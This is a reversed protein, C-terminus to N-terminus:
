SPWVYREDEITRREWNGNAHEEHDAKALADACPPCYGHLYGNSVYPKWGGMADQWVFGKPMAGRWEKGCHNCVVGVLSSAM